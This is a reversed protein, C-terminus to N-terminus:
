ILRGRSDTAFGGHVLGCRANEQITRIAALLTDDDWQEKRKDVIDLYKSIDKTYQKHNSWHGPLPSGNSKLKKGPLLIGNAADDGDWGINKLRTFLDKYRPDRILQEPILHHAQM